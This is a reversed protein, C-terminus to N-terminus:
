RYGSVGHRGSRPGGCVRFGANGATSDAGPQQRAAVRYRRCYSAHCLYSGGKQLGDATWEWTNGTTNFLGYSNPEYADVPATGYYGDEVTNQSPFAGQWVNMHHTGDPELENGWPFTQGELGGRAAFEWEAETPLRVGRWDCYALADNLSVNVVPHDPRLDISSGPGEPHIWSAGHVQRWWPAAAIGATPPFDDPLLGAFVFSWGFRQADTIYGTARVYASFATNTVACPEIQFPAVQVSRAFEGDAPYVAGTSAGM